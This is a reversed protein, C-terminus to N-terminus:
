IHKKVEYAELNNKREFIERADSIWYEGIDRLQVLSCHPKAAGGIELIKKNLKEPINKSLIKHNQRM